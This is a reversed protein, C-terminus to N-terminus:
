CQNASLVGIVGTSSNIDYLAGNIFVYNYGLLRNTGSIDLYVVCGTLSEFPLCTSYFTRNNATADSCAEGENIGRGGGTYINYSEEPTPTPTLIPTISWSECNTCEGTSCITGGTITEYITNVVYGTILDNKPVNTALEYTIDGSTTGSINFPGAVYTAGTYQSQLTFTIQM